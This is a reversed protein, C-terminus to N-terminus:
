MIWMLYNEYGLKEIYQRHQRNWAIHEAEDKAWKQCLEATICDTPAFAAAMESMLAIASEDTGYKLDLELQEKPDDSLEFEMTKQAEFLDAPKCGLEVLRQTVEMAEKWEEDSEEQFKEALKTYGNLRNYAAFTAHQKSNGYWAAAFGAFQKLAEEKTM